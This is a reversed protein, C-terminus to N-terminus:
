SGHSFATLFDILPLCTVASIVFLVRSANIGLSLQGLKDSQGYEMLIVSYLSSTAELLSFM